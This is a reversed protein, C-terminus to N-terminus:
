VLKGSPLVACLRWGAGTATAITFTGGLQETREKMGTLGNGFRVVQAGEGDDTAKLVVNEQDVTITLWLNSAESHRRANTLAEQALRFLTHAVLPDLDDAAEDIEVHVVPNRLDTCILALAKRIEVKKEERLDTVVNRVDSLLLRAIQHAERIQTAGGDTAHLAAVQLSISLATLNHGLTDHLERAIHLREALRTGDLEMERMAQLERNKTAVEVRARLETSSLRGLCFAVLNWVAIGATILVFILFPPAKDFVGDPAYLSTSPWRIYITLEALVLLPLYVAASRLSLLFGIQAAVVFLLESGVVVANIAQVAIALESWRTPYLLNSPRTAWLFVAAFSASGAIHMAISIQNSVRGKLLVQLLSPPEAEYLIWVTCIFASFVCALIGAIRLFQVSRFRDAGSDPEQLGNQRPATSM